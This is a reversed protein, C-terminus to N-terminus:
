VGFSYRIAEACIVLICIVIVAFLVIALVARVFALIVQRREEAERRAIAEHFDKNTYAM